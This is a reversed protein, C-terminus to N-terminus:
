KSSGIRRGRNSSSGRNVNRKNIGSGRVVNRRAGVEGKDKIKRSISEFDYQMALRRKKRYLKRKIRFFVATVFLSFFLLLFSFIVIWVVNMVSFENEIQIETYENANTSIINNFNTDIQEINEVYELPYVRTAFYHDLTPISNDFMYTATDIGIYRFHWPEFAYSTVHTYGYPYSLIFGYRHANNILWEYQNTNEFNASSLNINETNPQLIDVSLGLQHESHGPRASWTDAWKQGMSAVNNNYIQFQLPFSRFASRVVIPLDIEEMYRQMELFAEAAEARLYHNPAISVLDSPIFSNHIKNYTNVLTRIYYPNEITQINEYFPNNIGINVYLVIQNPELHTNELSFSVYEEYKDPRFFPINEFEM